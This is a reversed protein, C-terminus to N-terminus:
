KTRTESLPCTYRDIKKMRGMTQKRSVVLKKIWGNFHLKYWKDIADDNGALHLSATGDLNKVDDRACNFIKEVLSQKDTTEYQTISLTSLSLAIGEKIKEQIYERSRDHLRQCNVM